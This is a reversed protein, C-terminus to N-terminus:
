ILEKYADYTQMSVKDPHHNNYIDESLQIKGEPAKLHDLIVNTIYDIDLSDLVKGNSDNIVKSVTGVDSSIVFLNMALAEIIVMPGTEQKSLHLLIKSKSLYEPVNENEIQGLFHINNDLSKEKIDKIITNYYDQYIPIPGGIIGIKIDNKIERLKEVIPVILHTNKLPYIMGVLMIDFEKKDKQYKVNFFESSIANNVRFISVKSNIKKIELEISEGISILNKVNKYTYEEYKLRLRDRYSPNKILQSLIGHVTIINKYGSKIAFWPYLHECGIGHVIDPNINDICKQFRQRRLNPFYKDLIPIKSVYIFNINNKKYTRTKFYNGNSLVFIKLGDIKSLGNILNINWSSVHTRRSGAFKDDTVFRPPYGCLIAVKM